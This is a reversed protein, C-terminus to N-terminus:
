NKLKQKSIKFATWDGSDVVALGSPFNNYEYCYAKGYPTNLEFREYHNGQRGEAYGELIDLRGLQQKNVEYVEMKVSTNGYQKLGPFADGVSYLTYKPATEFTGLYTAEAVVRHNVLGKRLSGYVAVKFKKDEAM